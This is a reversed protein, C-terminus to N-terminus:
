GEGTKGRETDMLTRSTSEKGFAQRDNGSDENCKKQVFDLATGKGSEIIIITSLVVILKM